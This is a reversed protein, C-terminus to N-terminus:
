ADGLLAKVRQYWAQLHTHREPARERIRAGFDTTVYADIDAFTLQTGVIFDREKLHNDLERWFNHLRVRGRAELAPIQAINNPGPEARDKFAEHGNRLAEAVALFGDVFIHQDWSLVQARELATTGLLPKQPYLEELYSCIAICDSLVTGDDLQLAPVICRPNIARYEPLLQEGTRLDIQRTPLEIGKYALFLNVRRPNPALDYTYLKM